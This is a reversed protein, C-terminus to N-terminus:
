SVQLVVITEVLRERLQNQCCIRVAVLTKVKVTPWPM